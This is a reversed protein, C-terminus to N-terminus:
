PDPSIDIRKSGSKWQPPPAWRRPMQVRRWDIGELLMALQSAELSVTQTNSEIKPLHFRGRELRKYHLVFGGRDWWLLKVRDGRRNVFAFIHGSFVDEGWEHAVIASLGDFGKRLDVACSALYVRVSPPLSLM